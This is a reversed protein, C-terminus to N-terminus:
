DNGHRAEKAKKAANAIGIMRIKRYYASNGRRKAKGTGAAGANAAVRCGFHMAECDRGCIPCKFLEVAMNCRGKMKNKNTFQM